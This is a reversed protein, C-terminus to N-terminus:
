TNNTNLNTPIYFKDENDVLKFIYKIYIIYYVM